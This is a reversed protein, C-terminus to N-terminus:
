AEEVESKTNRPEKSMAMVFLSCSAMSHSWKSSSPHEPPRHTSSDGLHTNEIWIPIIAFTRHLAFPRILEGWTGRRGGEANPVIITDLGVFSADLELLDVGKQLEGLQPHLADSAHLLEALRDEHSVCGVLIAL